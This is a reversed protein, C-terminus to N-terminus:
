WSPVALYDPPFICNRQWMTWYNGWLNEVEYSFIDVGWRDHLTLCTSCPGDPCTWECKAQLLPICACPEATALGSQVASTEEMCVNGTVVGAVELFWQEPNLLQLENFLEAGPLSIGLKRRGEGEGEEVTSGEGTSAEEGPTPQPTPDPTPAYIELVGYVHHMRHNFVLQSVEQIAMKATPDENYNVYYEKLITIGEVKAEVQENGLRFVRECTLDENRARWEGDECNYFAHGLYTNTVCLLFCSDDVCFKSTQPVILDDTSCGESVEKAKKEEEMSRTMLRGKGPYGASGLQLLLFTFLIKTLM